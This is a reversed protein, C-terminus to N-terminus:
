QSFTQGTSFNYYWAPDYTGLFYYLWGDTYSYIFPWASESTWLWGFSSSQLYVSQPNEGSPYLWGLALHYVSNDAFDPFIFGMWCSYWGDGMEQTSGWVPSLVPIGMGAQILELRYTGNYAGRGDKKLKLFYDGAELGSVTYRNQLGPGHVKFFVSTELNDAAYLYIGGNLSLIGDAEDGTAEGSTTVDFILDGSGGTHTFAWFDEQDVGLGQGTCGLSGTVVDGVFFTNAQEASDNPETDASRSLGQLSAKVTYTGWYFNRGDKEIRIYYTGPRLNRREHEYESGLSHARWYLSTEGDSDYVTVGGNLNLSGDSERLSPGSASVTVTLHGYDPLTIVYWDAQDAPKGQGRFGLHGSATAGMALPVAEEATDNSEPDNGISCPQLAVTGSFGGFYFRRSDKLLRITYNGARLNTITHTITSGPGHGSRYLETEGDSDLVRFGAYLSLDPGTTLTVKLDGNAQTTISFDQPTTEDNAFSGSFSQGFAGNLSALFCFLVSMAWSLLRRGSFAVFKGSMARLMWKDASIAFKLFAYITNLAGAPFPDSL